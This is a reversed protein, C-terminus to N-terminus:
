GEYVQRWATQRDKRYVVRWGLTAGRRMVALTRFEVCKMERLMVWGYREAAGENIFLAVEGRVM